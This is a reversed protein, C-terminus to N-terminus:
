DGEGVGVFFFVFFSLEWEVCAALVAPRQRVM